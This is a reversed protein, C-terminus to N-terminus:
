RDSLDDGSVAASTFSSSACTCVFGANVFFYRTSPLVALIAVPIDRRPKSVEGGPILASEFGTFAYILLLIASLWSDASHSVAVTPVPSGHSHIFFLGAAVLILLPALKGIAFLNSVWTGM